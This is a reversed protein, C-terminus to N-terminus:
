RVHHVVLNQSAVRDEGVAEDCCQIVCVARFRVSNVPLGNGYLRVGHLIRSFRRYMHLSASVGSDWPSM